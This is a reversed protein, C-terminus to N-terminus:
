GILYNGYFPFKTKIGTTYGKLKTSDISERHSNSISTYMCDLLM